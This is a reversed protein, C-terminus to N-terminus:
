DLLDSELDNRNLNLKVHETSDKFNSRNGNISQRDLNPINAPCAEHIYAVRNRRAKMEIMDSDNNEGNFHYDTSYRQNKFSPYTGEGGFVHEADDGEDVSRPGENGLCKNVTNKPTM